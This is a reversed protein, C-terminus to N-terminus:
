YHRHIRGLAPSADGILSSGIVILVLDRRHVIASSAPSSASSGCGSRRRRSRARPSSASSSPPSAAAPIRARSALSFVLAAIGLIFSTLSLGQKPGAVPAPAYAPAAPAAPPTAPQEPTPPPPTVDSMDPHEKTTPPSAAGMTGAGRPLTLPGRRARGRETTTRAASEGLRRLGRHLVHHLARWFGTYVYGIISGALAMGRGGEGTRKIQGLAIHGAIIGGLGSSSASSSRSSRSRTPRRSRRGTSPSVPCRGRLRRTPSIRRPPPRRATRPPPTVDSM